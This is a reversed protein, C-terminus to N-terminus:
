RFFKIFDGAKLPRSFFWGQAMEVNLQKLANAQFDREVGEAIIVIDMAKAYAVLGKVIKPINDENDIQDIFYKDLKVIDPDIQSLQMINADGTGFDDLAVRVRGRASALTDLGQRDPFNRETLELMLQDIVDMLGAKMVAYELGGRGLLSPPVNIGIHMQPHDRLWDGLDDAVQEIVWYTVLGALANDEILPIFEDPAIQEDGKRWRILAEAGVCSNDTLSITPMYELYFESNQLASKLQAVTKM